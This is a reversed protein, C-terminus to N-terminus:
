DGVRQSVIVEASPSAADAAKEVSVVLDFEVLPVSAEAIEGKRDGEDYKLAGVRQWTDKDSRRAWVVFTKAGDRLRAPPALHELNVVLKTMAAAKDVHAVIKGDADAAKPTGRVEYKLPGGCGILLASAAVAAWGFRMMSALGRM